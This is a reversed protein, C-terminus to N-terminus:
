PARVPIMQQEHKLCSLHAAQLNVIVSSVTCHHVLLFELGILHLHVWIYIRRYASAVMIHYDHPETHSVRDRPARGAGADLLRILSELNGTQAAMHLPARGVQTTLFLWQETLRAPSALRDQKNPLM